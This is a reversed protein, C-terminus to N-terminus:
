DKTEHVRVLHSVSAIMGRIAATDPLERVRGIKNLGLGILTQRQAGIRRIPSGVQEVKVTKGSKAM